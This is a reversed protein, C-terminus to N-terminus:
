AVLQKLYKLIIVPNKFVGFDHLLAYYFFPRRLLDKVFKKKNHVAFTHLTKDIIKKREDEPINKSLCMEPSEHYFDELKSNKDVLGMESAINYLETGPAPTVIYPFTIEPDIEEMFAITREIDEISEWPFGFMFFGVMTLGHKKILKSANRIDDLTNGKKILKRINPDGTEVGIAIHQGGTKKMAVLLEDDIMEGRTQLSWYINLKKLKLLECFRLARKKDFFFIDDCIYFYRTKYKRKVEEIEMIMSEASRTRPKHGWLNFSGCFICKFPCGRSGYLAQFTSPPCKENEYLLHRGPLPLSDLDQIYERKSNIIIENNLKYAVGPVDVPAEDKEIIDVLECVTVEGEGFVVYDVVDEAIVNKTDITPHIGGFIIKIDPKVEKAVKAVNLASRYTASYVTIGLIDPDFMKIKDRVDDWVPGSLDELNKIYITYNQTLEDTDLISTGGIVTAYAPDNDINWIIPKRGSEELAAGIYALGPPYHILSANQLRYWPPNMLLIKPDNM